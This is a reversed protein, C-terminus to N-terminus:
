GAPAAQRARLARRLDDSQELVIRRAGTVLDTALVTEVRELVDQRVLTSPFLLLTAIRANQPTGGSWFGPVAALYRDVYPELVADQGYQWFGGALARVQANSLADGTLLDWAGAKSAPEPRAARSWEAHRLATHSRDRTLERALRQEDVEGLVALRRLVWWRLETDVM